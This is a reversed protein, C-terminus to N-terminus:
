QNELWLRCEEAPDAARLISGSVAVGSPGVALLESVDGRTIGGIAVVPLEIGERRCNALIRRYGDLGLVPSLNKKTTTFRFPGLGIYDAGAEAAGAIDTFTNATAGIIKMPGLQRRAEAVPLDNKGLHVGDAGLRHVLDVHDDVIFTAGYRRCLGVAQQGVQEVLAVPADKMRLQVWRCGGRLVAEIGRLQEEATDGNSIFQLRFHSLDVEARWVAGLMAVGGFGAEQLQPLKDPSVGGLAYIRRSLWPRLDDISFEAKYGPKSISPYVPSIFAYDFEPGLHRVENISHLSRSLLGHRGDPAKPNRSNLHVGGLGYRMALQFHDHLSLRPYLDAPIAEILAAMEAAESAPKRLHVRDAKGSRLMAAITESEGPFFDPCTIVIREM